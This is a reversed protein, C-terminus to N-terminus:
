ADTRVSAVKKAAVTGAVRSDVFVEKRGVDEKRGFRSRGEGLHELVLGDRRRRRRGFGVLRVVGGLM